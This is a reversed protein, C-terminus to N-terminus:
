ADANSKRLVGTHELISAGVWLAAFGVISVGYMACVALYYGSIVLLRDRTRWWPLSLLAAILIALFAYFFYEYADQTTLCYNADHASWDLHSAAQYSIVGYYTLAAAVIWSATYIHWHLKM